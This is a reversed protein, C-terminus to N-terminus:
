NFPRVAEARETEAKTTKQGQEATQETAHGMVEKRFDYAHYCLVHSGAGGAEDGHIITALM